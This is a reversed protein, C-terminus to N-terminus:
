AIEEWAADVADLASAYTRDITYHGDEVAADTDNPGMIFWRSPSHGSSAPCTCVKYGQPLAYGHDPAFVYWRSTGDRHKVLRTEIKGPLSCDAVVRWGDCEQYIKEIVERFSMEDTSNSYEATVPDWHTVRWKGHKRFPTYAWMEGTPHVVITSTRQTHTAELVTLLDPENSM